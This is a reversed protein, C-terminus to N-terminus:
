DGFAKDFEAKEKKYHKTTTLSRIPFRNPSKTMERNEQLTKRRAPKLIETRLLRFRAPSIGVM